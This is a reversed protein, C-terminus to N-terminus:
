RAPEWTYHFRFSSPRSPNDPKVTVLNVRQSPLVRVRLRSVNCSNRINECDTLQLGTITIAASSHNIVYIYQGDGSLAMETGAEIAESSPAVYVPARSSACGSALTGIIALLAARAPVTTM